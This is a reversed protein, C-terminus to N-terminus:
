RQRVEQWEDMFQQVQQSNINAWDAGQQWAQQHENVITEPQNLLSWTHPSSSPFFKYKNEPM